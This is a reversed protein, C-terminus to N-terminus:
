KNNISYQKAAASSMYKTKLELDMKDCSDKHNGAEMMMGEAPLKDVLGPVAYLIVVHSHLTLM